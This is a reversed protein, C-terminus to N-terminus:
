ERGVWGGGIRLSLVTRLKSCFTSPPPKCCSFQIDFPLFKLLGLALELVALQAGLITGTSLPYKSFYFGSPVWILM